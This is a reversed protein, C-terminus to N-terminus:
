ILDETVAKVVAKSRSRVHLKRYVSRLHNDITHHSIALEDAIKRITLGEVLLGLIERERPSLGYEDNSPAPPSLRNFRGLVKRAIYPNIPSAGHQVERIAAVIEDPPSPKLLYGVAGSAIADFVKQDDEHVTLVLAKTAPALSALRVLGDIGSMGPLGIDMLVVSPPELGGDIAAFFEECSRAEVTCRMDPQEDILQALTRCLVRHDEVLGVSVLKTM